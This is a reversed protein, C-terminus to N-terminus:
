RKFGVLAACRSCYWNNLGYSVMNSKGTQIDISPTRQCRSCRPPIEIPSQGSDSSDSSSDGNTWLVNQQMPMPGPRNTPTHGHAASTQMSMLNSAM